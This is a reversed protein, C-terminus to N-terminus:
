FCSFGANKFADVLNENLKIMTEAPYRIKFLFQANNKIGLKKMDKKVTAVWSDGQQKDAEVAEIYARELYNDLNDEFSGYKDEFAQGIETDSQERYYEKHTIVGTSLKPINKPTSKPFGISLVMMPLVYEPIKFYNRARDINSQISGIYVSGLGFDEALLVVNQASCMLDAYAILFHALASEGSFETGFMSAWRKVRLFDICFIMSLPANKVWPQDEVIAALEKRRAAEQVCIISIPQINGGSPANNAADILEEIINKPIKQDTFNRISRRKRILDSLNM